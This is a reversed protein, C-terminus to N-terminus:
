NEWLVPLIGDLGCVRVIDQMFSPVHTFVIKKDQARAARVWATLLALGSSDSQSLGKLDVQIDQLSNMLALGQRWLSEVNEFHVVGNLVIVNSKLVIGNNDM